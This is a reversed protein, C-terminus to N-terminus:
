VRERCSARGIERHDGRRYADHLEQHDKRLENQDNHLERWADQREQHNSDRHWWDDRDHKDHGWAHGRGYRGPGDWDRDDYRGYGRDIGYTQRMSNVDAQRRVIEDRDKQIERAENQMGKASGKARAENYQSTDKNLEDQARRLKDNADSWDDAFAATAALTFGLGLSALIMKLRLRDDHSKM